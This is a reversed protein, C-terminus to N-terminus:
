LQLFLRILVFLCTILEAMVASQKIGAFTARPSETWKWSHRPKRSWNRAATVSSKTMSEQLMWSARCSVSPMVRPKSRARKAATKRAVPSGVAAAKRKVAANTAKPKNREEELLKAAAWYTGNDCASWMNKYSKPDMFRRFSNSNVGMRELVASQTSGCKDIYRQLEGRIQNPTRQTGNKSLPIWGERDWYHEEEEDETQLSTLVSPLTTSSVDPLSQASGEASSDVASLM